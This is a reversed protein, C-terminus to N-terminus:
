PYGLRGEHSQETLCMNVSHSTMIPSVLDTCLRGYSRSGNCWVQYFLIGVSLDLLPLPSQPLPRHTRGGIQKCKNHQKSDATM